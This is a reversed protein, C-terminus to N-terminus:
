YIWMRVETQSSISTLTFVGYLNNLIYFWWLLSYVGSRASFLGPLYLINGSAHAKFSLRQLTFEVADTNCLCEHEAQWM